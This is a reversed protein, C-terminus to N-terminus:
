GPSYTLEAIYHATELTSPYEESEEVANAIERLCDSVHGADCTITIRVQDPETRFPQAPKAFSM